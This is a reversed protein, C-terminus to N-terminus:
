KIIKIVKMKNALIWKGGQSEPRDYTHYDEIEVEVWVRVEGNSLEHKLHPANMTFTCHWGLREAFGKTPYFEADLWVGIPIVTKRNIFLSGLTGDKRLRM